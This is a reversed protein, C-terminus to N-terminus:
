FPAHSTGETVEILSWNSKLTGHPPETGAHQHSLQYLVQRHHLFGPNSGQALVSGRSFSIAAWELSTRDVVLCFHGTPPQHGGLGSNMKVSQSVYSCPGEGCLFVENETSPIWFSISKESIDLHTQSLAQPLDARSSRLDLGQFATWESPLFLFRNPLHPSNVLAVWPSSLQSLGGRPQQRDARLHTYIGFVLLKHILETWNLQETTDLEKCGWSGCCALGRQGDGVGPTWHFKLKNM